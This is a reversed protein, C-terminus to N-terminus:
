RPLPPRKINRLLLISAPQRSGRCSHRLVGSPQTGSRGGVKAESVAKAASAMERGHKDAAEQLGRMRLESAEARGMLQACSEKAAGEEQMAEELAGELARLHELLAPDAHSSSSSSSSPKGSSSSPPLSATALQVIPEIQKLAASAAVQAATSALADTQSPTM